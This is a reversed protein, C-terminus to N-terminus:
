WEGSLDDDGSSADVRHDIAARVTPEGEPTLQKVLNDLVSTDVSVVPLLVGYVPEGGMSVLEAEPGCGQHYSRAQLMLSNAAALPRSMKTLTADYIRVGASRLLGQRATLQDIQKQLRQGALRVPLLQKTHHDLEDTQTSGDRYYVAFVVVNLAIVIIAFFSGLIAGGLIGSGASLSDAIIRFAMVVGSGLTVTVSLGLFTLPLVKAQGKPLSIHGQFDKYAKLDRGFKHLALAIAVTALVAFVGSTVLPIVSLALAAWNVNFIQSCFWLMVPGDLLVVFPALRALWRPVRRHKLSGDNTEKTVVARVSDMRAEAQVATLLEGNPGVVPLTPLHILEAKLVALEARLKDFQEAIKGLKKAGTERIEEAGVIGRAAVTTELNSRRSAPRKEGIRWQESVLAKVTALWKRPIPGRGARSSRQEKKPIDQPVYETAAPTSLPTPPRPRSKSQTTRTTM